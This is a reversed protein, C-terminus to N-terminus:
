KRKLFITLGDSEGLPASVQAGGTNITSVEFVAGCDTCVLDDGAKAEGITYYVFVKCNPCSVGQSVCERGDRGNSNMPNKSM